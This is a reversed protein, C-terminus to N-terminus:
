KSKRSAKARKNFDLALGVWYDVEKPTKPVDDDVLVYGRYGHKGMIM